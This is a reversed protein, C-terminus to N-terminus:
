PCGSSSCAGDVRAVTLTSTLTSATRGCCTSTQSQSSNTRRPFSSGSQGPCIMLQRVFIQSHCRVYAVLKQSALRTTHQLTEFNYKEDAAHQDIIFLDDASAGRRRAVIFGRNFQGLVEMAEFDAKCLVRALAAAAANNDDAGLGAATDQLPPKPVPAPAPVIAARRARYLASLRTTDVNVVVARSEAITRVFETRAGDEDGGAPGILSEPVISSSNDDKATPANSAAKHSIAPEAGVVDEGQEPDISFLAEGRDPEGQPPPDVHNSQESSTLLPKDPVPPPSLTRSRARPASLFLDPAPVYDDDIEMQSEGLQDIRSWASPSASCESNGETITEVHPASIGNVDDTSRHDGALLKDAAVSTAPSGRRGPSARQAGEHRTKEEDDADGPVASALLDGDLLKRPTASPLEDDEAEDAVREDDEAGDEDDLETGEDVDSEEPPPQSGAMAFGSLIRRMEERPPKRAVAAPKGSTPASISRTFGGGATIRTKVPSPRKLWSATSTDLVMQVERRPADGASLIREINAPSRHGTYSQSPGPERKDKPEPSALRPRKAPKHPSPTQTPKNTSLPKHMVPFDRISSPKKRPIPREEDEDALPTALRKSTLHSRMPECLSPDTVKTSHPSPPLQSQPRPSWSEGPAPASDASNDVYPAPADDADAAPGRSASPTSAGEEEGSSSTDRRHSSDRSLKTQVHSSNLAFTSRAESFKEQLANKSLCSIHDGSSCALLDCRSRKLWTAKAIYSYQGSTQVSMLIARIKMANQILPAAAALKTTM